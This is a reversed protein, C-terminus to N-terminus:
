KDQSNLINLIETNNNKKAIKILSRGSNTEIDISANNNCLLSVAEVNNLAVAIFLATVRMDRGDIRRSADVEAGYELLASIVDTRNHEAAIHLPLYGDYNRIHILEPNSKIKSVIGDASEIMQILDNNSNVTVSTSTISVNMVGTFYLILIFALVTSLTLSIAKINM